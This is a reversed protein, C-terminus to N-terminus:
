EFRNKHLLYMQWCLHYLFRCDVEQYLKSYHTSQVDVSRNHIVSLDAEVLECGQTIGKNDECRIPGKIGRTRCILFSWCAIQDKVVLKYRIEANCEYRCVSLGLMDCVRYHVRFAEGIWYSVRKTQYQCHLLLGFVVNKLMDMM